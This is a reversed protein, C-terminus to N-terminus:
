QEPSTERKVIVDHVFDYSSHAMYGCRTSVVGGISGGDILALVDDDKQIPILV